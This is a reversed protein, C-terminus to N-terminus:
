MAESANAQSCTLRCSILTFRNSSRTEWRKRIRCQPWITNDWFLYQSLLFSNECFIGNSAMWRVEGGFRPTSPLAFRNKSSLGGVLGVSGTAIRGGSGVCITKSLHIATCSLSPSTLVPTMM